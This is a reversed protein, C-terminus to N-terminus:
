VQMRFPFGQILPTMAEGNYVIPILFKPYKVASNDLALNILNASRVYLDPADSNLANSRSMESLHGLSMFRGGLIILFYEANRLWFCRFTFYKEFLQQCVM